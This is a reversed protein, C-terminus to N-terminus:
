LLSMAHGLLSEIEVKAFHRVRDAVGRLPEGAVLDRRDGGPDVLAVFERAVQPRLHALEPKVPDRDLLFKAPEAEAIEFMDDRLLFHRPGRGRDAKAVAGM